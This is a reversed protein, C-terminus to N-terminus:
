KLLKGASERLVKEINLLEGHIIDKIKGDSVIFYIMPLGKVMYKEGVKGYRDSLILPKDVKLTTLMEEFREFDEQYGVIVVKIGKKDFEDVISNLVPLENKCPKCTSSFFNLIIGKINEKKKEGVFDSLHFFNGNSHRFSFVPATDNVSLAFVPLATFFFLGISLIVPRM